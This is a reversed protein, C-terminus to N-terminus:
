ISLFDRVLSTSNITGKEKKGKAVGAESEVPTAARESLAKGMAAGERSAKEGKKAKKPL